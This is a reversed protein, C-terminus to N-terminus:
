NASHARIADAQERTFTYKNDIMPPNFGLSNSIQAITTTPVNMSEALENIAIGDTIEPQPEEAPKSKPKRAPEPKENVQKAKLKNMKEQEAAASNIFNELMAKKETYCALREQQRMIIENCERIKENCSTLENNLEDILAM